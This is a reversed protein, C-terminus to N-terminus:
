KLVVVMYQRDNLNRWSRFRFGAQEALAKLEQPEIRVDLPPGDGTDKRYWELVTCWGGTRLLQRAAELFGRRDDNQHVVFALFVGDLSEGPIPFETASSRMIDVNGLNSQAVRERLTDLMEEDNDLAYLKGHTLYKGMPISFYGPGCGIDAVHEYPDIPMFSMVVFPDLDEMRGPDLLARIFEESTM